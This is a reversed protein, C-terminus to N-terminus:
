MEEQNRRDFILDQALFLLGNCLMRAVQAPVKRLEPVSLCGLQPCWHVASNSDSRRDNTSRQSPYVYPLGETEPRLTLMGQHSGARAQRIDFKGHNIRLVRALPRIGFKAVM